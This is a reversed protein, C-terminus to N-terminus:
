SKSSKRDLLEQDRESILFHQLTLPLAFSITQPPECVTDSCPQFRVRGPLTLEGEPLPFKLLLTGQIEASSSYVPVRQDLLPLQVM